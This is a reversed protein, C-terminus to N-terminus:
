KRRDVLVLWHLLCAQVKQLHAPDGWTFLGFVLDDFRISDVLVVFTQKYRVIRGHFETHSEALGVRRLEDTLGRDVDRSWDIAMDDGLRLPLVSAMNQRISILNFFFKILEVSLQRLIVRALLTLLAMRRVLRIRMVSFSLVEVAKSRSKLLSVQVFDSLKLNLRLFDWM